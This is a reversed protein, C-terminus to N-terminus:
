TQESCPSPWDEPDGGREGDQDGEGRHADESDFRFSFPRHGGLGDGLRGEHGGAVVQGLHEDFSGDGRKTFATPSFGFKARYFREEKL